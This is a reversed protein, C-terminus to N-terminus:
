PKRETACIWAGGEEPPLCEQGPPCGTDGCGLFLLLACLLAGSWLRLGTTM